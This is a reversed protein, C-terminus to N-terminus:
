IQISGSAVYYQRLICTLLFVVIVAKRQIELICKYQIYVYIDIYFTSPSSHGWLVFPFLFLVACINFVFYSPHPLDPACARNRFLFMGKWFRSVLVRDAAKKTHPTLREVLLSLSPHCAASLPHRPLHQRQEESTRMDKRPFVSLLITASKKRLVRGDPVCLLILYLLKWANLAPQRSLSLVAFRQQPWVATAACHLSWKQCRKHVRGFVVQRSLSSLFPSYFLQSFFVSCSRVQYNSFVPNKANALFQTQNLLFLYIIIIISIQIAIHYFKVKFTFKKTM